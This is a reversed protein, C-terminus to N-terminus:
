GAKVRQRWGRGREEKERKGRVGMNGCAYVCVCVYVGMQVPVLGGGGGGHMGVHARRVPCGRGGVAELGVGRSGVVLPVIGM